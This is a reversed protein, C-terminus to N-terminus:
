SVFVRRIQSADCPLGTVPCAHHEAVYTSLCAYCFCYGSSSLAPNRRANGCLPCATADPKVLLAGAASPRPPLPPPITTALKRQQAERAARNEPSMYFEALKFIVASAVFSVHLAQQLKAVVWALKDRASASWFSVRAREAAERQKQFDEASLRAVIVGQLWLLPSYHETRNFLYACQFGLVALEFAAMVPRYVSWLWEVVLEVSTPATPTAAAPPPGGGGGGGGRRRASERAAFRMALKKLVYPVVAVEVLSSLKLVPTLPAGDSRARKLGYFNEAFSGAYQALHHREVLVMLALFLEDRHAYARAAVANGQEALVGVAYDFGPQLAGSLSSAMSLEFLTPVARSADTVVNSFFLSM